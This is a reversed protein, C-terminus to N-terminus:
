SAIPYVPITVAYEPNANMLDIYTRGGSGALQISGRDASWVQAPAGSVQTTVTFSHQGIAAAVTAYSSQASTENAATACYTFGM